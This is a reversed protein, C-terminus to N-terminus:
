EIKTYVPSIEFPLPDDQGRWSPVEFQSTWHGMSRAIIAQTFVSTVSAIYSALSSFLLISLLMAPFAELFGQWDQNLLFIIGNPLGFTWRIGFFALAVTGAIVAGIISLLIAMGLIRILGSSDQRMMAWIKKLQFGPALRGYISMRMIGVGSFISAFAIAFVNSVSFLLSILGFIMLLATPVWSIVDASFSFTFNWATDLLLPILMFVFTIVLAFFGRSYLRGDDNSFIKKPMPSSIKWAADRAWGYFYGYIVIWGFIPILGILSLLLLNAIWGPSNKIDKWAANFFGSQM